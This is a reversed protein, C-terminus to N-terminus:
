RFLVGTRVGWGWVRNRSARETRGPGSAVGRARVPEDQVGAGVSFVILDDLQQRTGRGADWSGDVALFRGAGPGKLEASAARLQDAGVLVGHHAEEEGEAQGTATPEEGTAGNNMRASAELVQDIIRRRMESEATDRRTTYGIM